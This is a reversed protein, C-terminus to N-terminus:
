ETVLGVTNDLAHPGEVVDGTIKVSKITHTGEMQFLMGFAVLMNKGKPFALSEYTITLQKGKLSGELATVITVVKVKGTTASYSYTQKLNCNDLVSGKYDDFTFTGPADFNGGGCNGERNVADDAYNEGNAPNYHGWGWWDQRFVWKNDDKDTFNGDDDAVEIQGAWGRAADSNGNTRVMDIDTTITWDSNSSLVGLAYNRAKWDQAAPYNFNVTKELRNHCCSWEGDTYTGEHHDIDIPLSVNFKDGCVTCTAEAIGENLCTAEKTVKLDSENYVHEGKISPITETESHGCYKCVHHKEGDTKCTEKTDVIWEGYTHGESCYEAEAFYKNFGDKTIKLYDAPDKSDMWSCPTWGIKGVPNSGVRFTLPTDINIGAGISAYDLFVEFHFNHPKGEETNLDDSVFRGDYNAKTGSTVSAWRQGSASVDKETGIYAEFNDFEWWNGPNNSTKLEDVYYDAFIYVGNYNRTAYFDIHFTDDAVNNHRLTFKNNKVTETYIGDDMKGDLVVYNAPDDSVLVKFTTTIAKEGEGYTVTITAEKTGEVEKTTVLGHEDVIAVSEDSTSYKLKTRDFVLVDSNVDLQYSSNSKLMESSKTLTLKTPETNFLSDVADGELARFNKSESATKFGGIWAYSSDESGVENWSIHKYAKFSKYDDSSNGYYFYYDTGNRLVGLKFYENKKYSPTLTVYNSGSGAWDWDGYGETNSVFSANAWENNKNPEATDLFFFAYPNKTDQWAGYQNTGTMIGLKPYSDTEDFSTLRIEAEVYWKNSYVDAFIMSTNSTPDSQKLRGESYYDETDLDTSRNLDILSHKVNLTISAFKTEDIQSTATVIIEKTGSHINDITLTGSSTIGAFDKSADDIKWSVKKAKAEKSDTDVVAKLNIESNDFVDTDVDEGELDKISVGNIVIKTEQQPEKGCSTLATSTLGLTLLAGSLLMLPLRKKM